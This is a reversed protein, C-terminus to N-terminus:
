KKGFLKKIGMELGKGITRGIARGLLEDSHERSGRKYKKKIRGSSSTIIIWRENCRGCQYNVWGENGRLFNMKAGCDDCYVREPITYKNQRM